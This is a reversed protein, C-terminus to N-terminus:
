GKVGGAYLGAMIREQFVVFIIVIPVLAFILGSAIIGYDSVREAKLLPLVLQLTRTKQNLLILAFLYENWIEIFNLIVVTAIGSRSLPLIIHYLIQPLNAGDCIAAEEMDQPIERMTCSLLIVTLSIRAASYFLVLYIPNYLLGTKAAMLFVPVLIAFAPILFGTSFFTEVLNSYRNRLRSIAYAALFGFLLTVLESCITVGFSIGMAKVLGVRRQAELFNDLSWSDPLSLPTTFIQQNEKFASVFVFYVPILVILSYILTVGYNVFLTSKKHHILTSETKKQFPNSIKM